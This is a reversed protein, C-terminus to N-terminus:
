NLIERFICKKVGPGSVAAAQSWQWLPNWYADLLEGAAKKDDVIYGFEQLNVPYMNDSGIYFVRDDIMWLKAHTAFTGHDAWKSDPGFRFPALHVHECLLANVPDPGTRIAYRSQPDKAEFRGQVMERLHRAFTMLSVGNSYSSGSNGTAGDDSLVIYIDGRDQRLFDVLRDITSEPFLTDSRGLSFGLDQQVIRIDSQAAGLMLDRALESQNEFDKTIGAGMRAVALIPVGGTPRATPLAPPPAACGNEPSSMGIAFNAINISAKRDINACAYDWLRDTYRAASAAAPGHIRMSLDHVPDDILYDVSWMNHGGVLADVGDVTV